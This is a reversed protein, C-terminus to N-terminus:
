PNYRLRYFSAPQLAASDQWNFRGNIGPANTTLVDDWVTLNTSRQVTYSFNPIGAFNLLPIGGITSITVPSISTVALITVLAAATCDGTASAATYHFSDDATLAGHYIIEGGSLTLSIGNASTADLGALAVGGSGSAHALVNSEAIEFSVGLYANLNFNTAATFNVTLAAVSSTVAGYGNSYIVRFQKGNDGNATAFSYTGAAEGPIDSFNTGGDTSVQWQEDMPAAGDGASSFTATSGSCAAQEQPQTTIAPASEPTFAVGRFVTNAAATALTASPSNSGTDTIMVLRNASTEATTAYIVPNAASFDVALGRSGTGANTLTYALSWTGAINTWKQVGGGSAVSNDDAVYALTGAANIAFGFPSSNTSMPINTIVSSATDRLGSISYLGLGGGAASTFYLNGNFINIVRTNALINQVLAAASEAGLYYTGSTGGAAWFNNTGDTAASRINNGSFQSSTTVPLAFNGGADFTGAARPVSASETGTVSATGLDTNYGAFCLLREDPSRMLAGDSTATGSDVLASSGSAPLALSQVLTGATTYEDVFVATGASTLAASGDGMRMVALDGTTFPLHVAVDASGTASCGTNATVTCGLVLTGVTGATYTITATNQGASFSGGSITWAYTAGAGAGPVSAQNNTSGMYTSIAATIASDPVPNITVTASGASSSCGSSNAVTCGLVVTGSANATYTISNGTGGGTISGGAITWGYAAGAGAAPVSAENGTSGGCVPSSATIVSSPVPNVVVTTTAPVSTGCDTTRTVTYVGANAPTASAITPNQASSTFGNPGTWTYTDGTDGAATLLITVGACYPGGNGATTTVESSITVTVSSANSSCGARNTVTCGLVVTGSPGATYIISNTARGGTITGGSITWGYAAGTGAAPVAATNGTSSPCVSSAATITSGPIPVITITASGSSTGPSCGSSDSVTTVTYITTSSPFVSRTAPSSAIGSQDVGDSWTVSWPGTGTLDAHITAPSGSCIAQSDASRVTATPVTCAPAFAIGKMTTGAAATYLTVNDGTTISITANYGATDTLEILSNAATAGTGTTAYLVAGSGSKAACLGFGGFATAYSGSPKWSSGVLSYKEITGATASSEDLVYLVDFVTGNSGSSILHFDVASNNTTLGSLGTLVDGDASLTSVVVATKSQQLVYVAGGFSKVGRVNADNLVRSHNTYIGGQDGAYWLSNNLSCAGRTQNGSVGAYTTQLVFSGSNDLTGVGRLVNTNVNGAANTTNHGTFVLLTGDGSDSVYGPTSASGSTRLASSGSSGDISISNV